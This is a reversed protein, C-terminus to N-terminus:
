PNLRYGHAETVPSCYQKNWLAYVTYMYRHTNSYVRKITLFHQNLDHVSTYLGRYFLQYLLTRVSRIKVTSVVNETPDGTRSLFPIM